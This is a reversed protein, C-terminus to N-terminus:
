EPPAAKQRCILVKERSAPSEAVQSHDTPIRGTQLFARYKALLDGLKNSASTLPKPCPECVVLRESACAAAHRRDPLAPFHHSGYGSSGAAWSSGARGLPLVAPRVGDVPIQDGALRPSLAEVALLLGVGEQGLPGRVPLRGLECDLGSPDLLVTPSPRRARQACPDKPVHQGVPLVPMAVVLFRGHPVITWSQLIQAASQAPQAHAIASRRASRPRRPGPKRESALMQGRRGASGQKARIGPRKALRSRRPQPRRGFPGRGARHLATPM